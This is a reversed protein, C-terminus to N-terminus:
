GHRAMCSHCCSLTVVHQVLQYSMCSQQLAMGTQCLVPANRIALLNLCLMAYKPILVALSCIANAFCTTPLGGSALQMYVICLGCYVSTTVTAPLRLCQRLYTSIPMSLRAIPHYGEATRMKLYARAHTWQCPLMVRLCRKHEFTCPPVTVQYHQQM